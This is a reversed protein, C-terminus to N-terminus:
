QKGQVSRVHDGVAIADVSRLVLGLSVKDLAEVVLLTAIAQPPFHRSRSDHAAIRVQRVVAVLSGTTLGALRGRNLAVLDHQAAWNGGRLIAAVKGEFPPAPHLQMTSQAFSFDPTDATAPALRDGAVLERASDTVRFRHLLTGDTQLYDARGTRQMPVALLSGDDPDIVPPLMRLVEHRRTTPTPALDGEVMAIDGPGAIRRRDSFGLIRPLREAEQMPLMRLEQGLQEWAVDVAPVPEDDPPTSRAAPSLRSTAASGAEAIRLRQRSRDFLIVQGPYIRHPDRIQNRNLEWVHPWCWPDELFTAAIDWLTDGRSVRHQEPARALFECGERATAPVAVALLPLCLCLAATSFKKM